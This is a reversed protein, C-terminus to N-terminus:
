TAIIRPPPAKVFDAKRLYIPELPLAPTVDRAALDALMAPDPLLTQWPGETLVDPRIFTEGDKRRQWDATTMVRFPEKLTLKGHSKEFQAGYFENRQADIFLTFAGEGQFQHAVCDASSFGMLKVPRVLAWGQAIAIATRIGGYSGPGLGVAICDVADRTVGAEALAAKILHFPKTERGGEEFASGSADGHRVFVGRRPSSFELALIAM